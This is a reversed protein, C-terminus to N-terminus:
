PAGAEVDRVWLALKLTVPHIQEYLSLPRAQLAFISARGRGLAAGIEGNNLGLGRGVHAIIRRVFVVAKRKDPSVLTERPVEAIRSAELVLARALKRRLTRAPTM